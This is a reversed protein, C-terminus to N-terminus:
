CCVTNVIVILEGPCLAVTVLLNIIIIIIIITKLIALDCREVLM